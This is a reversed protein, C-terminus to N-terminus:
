SLAKNKADTLAKCENYKAITDVSWLLIDKGQGSELLQLDACPQLLNVPITPSLHTSQQCGMMM